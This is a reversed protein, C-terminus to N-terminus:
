RIGRRKRVDALTLPNNKKLVEVTTGMQECAIELFSSELCWDIQADALATKLEKNQKRLMKLEDIENMTEVKVRKPLIDERGYQKIWYVLTGHGGIGNKRQAESICRYTGREVKEVVKRKFAESYRVVEKM